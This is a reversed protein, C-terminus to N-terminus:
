PNEVIFFNLGEIAAGTEGGVITGVVKREGLWFLVADPEKQPPMRLERKQELQTVEFGFLEEKDERIILNLIVDLVDEGLEKRLGLSCM